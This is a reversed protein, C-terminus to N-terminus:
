PSMRFIVPGKLARKEGCVAQWLVITYNSFTTTWRIKEISGVVFVPNSPFNTREIAGPPNFWRGPPFPEEEQAFAFLAFALIAIIYFM